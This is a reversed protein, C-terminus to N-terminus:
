VPLLHVEGVKHTILRTEVASTGDKYEGLLVLTGTGDAVGKITYQTKPDHTFYKRGILTPDIIIM